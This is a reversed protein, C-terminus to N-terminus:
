VLVCVSVLVSWNRLCFQSYENTCTKLYFCRTRVEEITWAKGHSFISLFVLRSTHTLSMVASAEMMVEWELRKPINGLKVTRQCICPTWRPGWGVPHHQGCESGSEEKEAVAGCALQRQSHEWLCGATHKISTNPMEWDLWASLIFSGDCFGM